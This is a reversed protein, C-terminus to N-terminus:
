NVLPHDYSDPLLVDLDAAVNNMSETVTKAALAARIATLADDVFDTLEGWRTLALASNAALLPPFWVFLVVDGLTQLFANVLDAVASSLEKVTASLERLDSSAELLLPEIAELAETLEIFYDGAENAANGKWTFFLRSIGVRLFQGENLVFAGLNDFAVSALGIETWDGVLYTSLWGGFDIGLMALVDLVIGSPSLTAINMGLDAWSWYDTEDTTVPAPLESGSPQPLSSYVDFNHPTAPLGADQAAQATADDETERYMDATDHLETSSANLSKWAADMMAAAADGYARTQERVPDIMGGTGVVNTVAWLKIYEGGDLFALSRAFVVSAFTDIEDPSVSFSSM